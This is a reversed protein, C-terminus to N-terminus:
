ASREYRVFSFGDHDERAVEHWTMPDISPFFTDGDVDMDVHTIELRDAHSMAAQYIEAGGIVFPDSALGLAEDLSGAKEVGEPLPYNAQRTVVVNKRGPLPRFTEPISEWTKRGMIVPHGMTLNKFHETDEPIRWPLRGNKGVSNNKSIAAILTVM